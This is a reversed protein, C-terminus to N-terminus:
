KVLARFTVIAATIGTTTSEKKPLNSIPKVM